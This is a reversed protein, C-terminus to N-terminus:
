MLPHSRRKRGERQEMKGGETGEGREGARGHSTEGCSGDDCERRGEKGEERMRGWGGEKLHNSCLLSKTGLWMKATGCGLAQTPLFHVTKGTSNTMRPYARGGERGGMKTAIAQRLQWRKDM